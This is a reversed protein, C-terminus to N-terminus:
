RFGLRKMDKPNNPNLGKLKAYENPNFSCGSGCTFWGAYGMVMDESWTLRKNHNKCNM